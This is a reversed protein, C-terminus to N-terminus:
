QTLQNLTASHLIEQIKLRAVSAQVESCKKLGACVYLGFLYDMDDVELRYQSSVTSDPDPGDSQSPIDPNCLVEELHGSLNTLGHPVNRESMANKHKQSKLHEKLHSYRARLSVECFKCFARSCDGEVEAIWDGILDDGYWVPNFRFERGM